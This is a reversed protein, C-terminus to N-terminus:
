IMQMIAARAALCLVRSLEDHLGTSAYARKVRARARQRFNYLIHGVATHLAIRNPWGIIM